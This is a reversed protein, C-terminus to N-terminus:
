AQALHVRSLLALLIVVGLLLRLEDTPRAPGGGAARGARQGGAPPVSCQRFNGLSDYHDDFLLHYDVSSPQRCSSSM